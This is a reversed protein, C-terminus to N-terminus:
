WKKPVNKISYTTLARAILVNRRAPAKQDRPHQTGNCNLCKEEQQKCYDKTHGLLGCKYCLRVNPIYYRMEIMTNEIIVHKPLAQTRFTICVMDTDEPAGNIYKKM